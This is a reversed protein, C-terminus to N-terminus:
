WRAASAGRSARWAIASCSRAAPSPTADVSGDDVVVVEIRDARYRQGLVSDIAEGLFAATDRAPIVCSIPPEHM